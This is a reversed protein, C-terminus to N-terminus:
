ARLLGGVQQTLAAGIASRQLAVEETTLTRDDARFELHFALSVRGGGVQEGTFVDFLEVSELEPGAAQKIAAIVEAAGVGDDVVVALDERVSPFTGFSAYTTVPPALQALLDLSVIWVATPGLEWSAAVHPHVEGIFGLAKDGSRVSAARGPHLFPSDTRELEFPIGAVALVAGLLGKAAYFDSPAPEGRWSEVGAGALLVGLAQHEDALTEAARYVTGSEFLRVGGAGRSVNYRAVDLLSGLLTPRMISLSQSLPNEIAVVRRMPHEPPLRLRDLLAPDAFSWGVAEYLGRSALADEARRRLLQAATLRGVAGNRPPLTAPLRDLGDIRAVEEILDVPRTVDRRRFHPPRVLLTEDDGAAEFALSELIARCREPPVASGLLANVRAPALAIPEPVPGPGGVDITGPLLEAGCLEKILRTAVALSELTQEPSLGKEFRASAESRLGLRLAVRQVTAGDWNAAELLVRTTSATVESAAGGMIAALSTPGNADCIIILDEDLERSHGDLTDLKEGARGRRVILEPGAIKDLDFAHLPQGTLLMAYNTVDVVNSIPRMGAALLRAKLWIPSEGIAVGEFVRATFRPCLEPCEVVVRVSGADGEFTGPDEAWPPPSLPAGSAAHTERAIGYVGLCDPRNPTIEFEIVDTGLPLVDALPTGPPTEVLVMIGSHEGGLALEDASLIMGDSIVGRLKAAALTRGDPLQAGPRAVAVTQGAAVNPAGCVITVPESEGIDVSCVRLRDANPHQAAERVFGVVYHEANPPGWRFLRETKTGTMTLRGALAESDLPPDCYERLWEVPVLM